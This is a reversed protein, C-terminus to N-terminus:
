WAAARKESPVNDAFWSAVPAMAPHALNREVYGWMRPQFKRYGPKGDRKWLRTFVGLIRVNRQAGLAQYATEFAAGQGTAAVYRALMESEIAVPVDRRADQLMSVLDYAPHGILADQFDLLGFRGDPLLMVNEAHFDRLETVTQGLADVPALAERWAADFGPADVDLGVAPCYWDTFLRVEDLWTALGHPKLGAPPAHRHLEVLVDVVGAYIAREREPTADVTERMRVDGFDELLLLGSELDRALIRPAALGIGHLYDAVRLFPGVDEKNPPADMLVASRGSAIVRFYRRFSADGALPLIEADGWGNAALFAPAAAPPIMPAAM